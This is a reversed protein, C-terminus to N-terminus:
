ALGAGNMARSITAFVDSISGAFMSGSNVPLDATALCYAVAPDGSKGEGADGNRKGFTVPGNGPM